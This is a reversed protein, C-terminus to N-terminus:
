NKRAEKMHHMLQRLLIPAHLGDVYIDLHKCPVDYVQVVERCLTSWYNNVSQDTQFIVAQGPYNQPVYQKTAELVVRTSYFRRLSIPLSYGCKFFMQCFMERIKIWATNRVKDWRWQFAESVRTFNGQHFRKIPNLRETVGPRIGRLVPSVSTAKPSESPQSRSPRPDVLALLGVSEGARRLQQAMEYVVLGGFSYGALFYPGRPQVTRIDKLYCAAIDEVTEYLAPRGDHGQNFIMYLPQDPYNNMYQKFNSGFLVCFLPQHAMGSQIPVMHSSPQAEKGESIVIALREITQAHFIVTVPIKKQLVREIEACLRIALLSEGGLNYFNETVGIPSKKFVTEWIKTLQSEGTNRPPVYAAEVPSTQCDPNPLKARDVKGNSTLPFANLYVFSGPIMYSPLSRSLFERLVSNPLDSGKRTILYAVLRTNHFDDNRPLVVAEQIGPHIRLLTEIEGCEIRHGRIKVQQDKRGTVQFNGNSLHDALDGTRYLRSGPISCFPDPVFKEATLDPQHFYGRVRESAEVYLEGRQSVPVPAGSSDLVYVKATKKQDLKLPEWFNERHLHVWTAGPAETAAYTLFIDANLKAFFLERLADPLNEGSCCVSALSHCRRIDSQDLLVRLSSPVFHAITVSENAILRILYSFDQEGGSTALIATGGAFLPSMLEWLFPAFSMPCKVLMRDTSTVKLLSEQVPQQEQDSASPPIIPPYIEMVGKPRGTSGSTYFIVRLNGKHLRPRPNLSSEQTLIHALTNIDIPRVSDHFVEFYPEQTLIMIPQCKEVMYTLRDRPYSPELPLLCGGAKIVGLITVVLSISRDLCVGVITEPGVEQRELWHALQNARRNLEQYTVHEDEMVAAIVESRQNVQDMFKELPDLCDLNKHSEICWEPIIGSVNPENIQSSFPSPDHQQSTKSM